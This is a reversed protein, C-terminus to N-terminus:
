RHRDSSSRAWKELARVIGFKSIEEWGSVWMKLCDGIHVRFLRIAQPPEHRASASRDVGLTAPMKTERLTLALCWLELNGEKAGSISHIHVEVGGQPIEKRRSNKKIITRRTHQIKIRFVLPKANTSLSPSITANRSKQSVDPTQSPIAATQSRPRTMPILLRLVRGQNQRPVVVVAREIESGSRCYVLHKTCVSWFAEYTGKEKGEEKGFHVQVYRIVLGPGWIWERREM